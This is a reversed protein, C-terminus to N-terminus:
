LLKDAVKDLYISRSGKILVYSSNTLLPLLIPLVEEQNNVLYIKSDSKKLEDILYKASKGM